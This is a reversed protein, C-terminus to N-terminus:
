KAKRRVHAEDSRDRAVAAGRELEVTSQSLGTLREGCLEQLVARKAAITTCDQLATAARAPLALVSQRFLAAIQM